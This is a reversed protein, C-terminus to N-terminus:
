EKVMDELDSQISIFIDKAQNAFCEVDSFTFRYDKNDPITNIDSHCVIRTEGIENQTVHNYETIINLEEGKGHVQMTGRANTRSSWEKIDKDQYFPVIRMVQKEFKTNGDCVNSIFNVNLALRNAFVSGNEMIFRLIKVAAEFSQLVTTQEEVEFNFTCDIRNETCVVKEKNDITSFSLNPVNEVNGSSIDIKQTNLISPLLDAGSIEKLKPMLIAINDTSPVIRKNSFASLQMSLIAGM